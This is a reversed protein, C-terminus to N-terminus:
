VSTMDSEHKGTVARLYSQELCPTQGGGMIADCFLRNLERVVKSAQRVKRQTEETHPGFPASLGFSGTTHYLGITFRQHFDLNLRDTQMIAARITFALREKGERAAVIGGAIHAASIHAYEALPMFSRSFRVWNRLGYVRAESMKEALVDGVFAYHDRILNTWCVDLTKATIVNSAFKLRQFVIADVAEKAHRTTFNDVTYFIDGNGSVDIVLNLAHSYYTEIEFRDDTILEDEIVEDDESDFDEDDDMEAGATEQEAPIPAEKGTEACRRCTPCTRSRKLWNLICKSGFMHDCPLKIFAEKEGGLCIYCEM